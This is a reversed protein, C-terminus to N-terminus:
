KWRAHLWPSQPPTTNVVDKPSPSFLFPNDLRSKIAEAAPMARELAEAADVLATGAAVIEHHKDPTSRHLRLSM